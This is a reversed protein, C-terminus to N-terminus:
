ANPKLKFSGDKAITIEANLFAAKYGADKLKQYAMEARVGTSCHAIIRKDKPLEQMRALLQEEPILVAGKIMGAKSEEQNRVDLIVVDPPMKSALAKFEDIPISGPRPKPAYAVNMAPKGTELAYGAMQWGLLGGQMVQVNTQGGKILAHAAAIADAGGRGDYVIIPAALEPKPFGKARAKIEAAPMGVAGKIHDGSSAEASRVDLLVAPIGPDLYAAKVFEPRTVLYDKTQWEPVGEHYVKAQTYGLTRAKKMSMPSMQCTLGQCFFVVTTSKDTPLRNAFKDFAPFPVNIAGPITGQQFRPLPRSDVLVVKSKPDDVVKRVFAYDVLDAKAIKAPGKFRVETAWKEGNREVYAIRTEHGTRVDGMHDPKKPEGADLVKLTKEDFRVVQKTADIGLLISGTKFSVNEFYGAVVGAEPQHCNNCVAPQMPKAAPAPAQAAATGALALALLAILKAKM